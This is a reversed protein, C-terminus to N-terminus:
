VFFGGQSVGITRYMRSIPFSAKESEICGFTM